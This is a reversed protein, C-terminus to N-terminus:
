ACAERLVDLTQQATRAWSLESSRKLGLDRCLAKVRVDISVSRMAHEISEEDYPDFLVAAGGAVEPISSTNSCVVPTGSAMAELVPLGYGEFLSPFVFVDACRYLDPLDESAVFGLFNIDAAHACERAVRHVEDARTWDSGALVLQHPIHERSKIRDFARILRVHNKGPHEIRSVYLFYPQRIGHQACVPSAALTGPATPHYISTDAALQIVRVRSEPIRAHRVIDRKSSESDTIVLTLKRILFPLVHNIYTMRARDYKGKVHLAALDHVTGVTPCHTRAPIRRNGAPLFLVDFGRDKCITPLSTMHWLVNLLPSRMRDDVCWTPMGPPAFLKAEDPYVLTEFDIDTVEGAFERLLRVAYQGIGSKGSDCGFTTIGVRM